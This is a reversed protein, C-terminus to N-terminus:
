MNKIRTLGLAQNDWLIKEVTKYEHEECRIMLVIESTINKVGLKNKKILMMKILFGLLLGSVAGIIGWIIPGWKLIYGYIAGLLMLCTGLIAAADFLSLGDARHITDFLKRQESRKDLPAALIREKSIDNQELESLALEIFISNEFSAIVLM